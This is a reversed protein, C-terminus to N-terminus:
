GELRKRSKLRRRRKIAIGALGTGLLLLTAPEPVTDVRFFAAGTGFPNNDVRITLSHMGPALSFVAHSVNPNALCAAPDNNCGISVGVPPTSGVLNGFDFLSFSDGAPFADTVTVRVSLSSTFTWPPDPAFTSNVGPFCFPSACATAFTGPAFFRFEYWQGISIASARVPSAASALCLLAAAFVSKALLHKM